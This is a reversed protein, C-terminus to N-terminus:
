QLNLVFDSEYILKHIQYKVYERREPPMRQLSSVLSKFFLEEESLPAPEATRRNLAELLLEEIRAQRDREEDVRPRKRTGRTVTLFPFLM